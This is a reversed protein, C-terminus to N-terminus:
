AAQTMSTASAILTHRKVTLFRIDNPRSNEKQCIQMEKEGCYVASYISVCANMIAKVMGPIQTRDFHDNWGKYGGIILRLAPAPFDGEYLFSDPDPHYEGMCDMLTGDELELVVHNFHLGNEGFNSITYAENWADMREFVEGISPADDEDGFMNVVRIKTHIGLRALFIHAYYAFVGCGGWNVNEFQIGVEDFFTDAVISSINDMSLM